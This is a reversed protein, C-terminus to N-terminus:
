KESISQTTQTRLYGIASAFLVGIGSYEQPTLNAEFYANAASLLVLLISLWITRSKLYKKM